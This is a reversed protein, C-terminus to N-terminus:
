IKIRSVRRRTSAGWMWGGRPAAVYAAMRRGGQRSRVSADNLEIM